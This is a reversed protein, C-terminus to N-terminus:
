KGRKKRAPTNLATGFESLAQGYATGLEDFAPGDADPTAPPFLTLRVQSYAGFRRTQEEGAFSRFRYLAKLYKGTFVDEQFFVDDVVLEAYCAPAAQILRGPTQRLTRSDLAEDHVIISYGPLGLLDALPAARMIEAQRAPSLPTPPLQRYGERGQVAGDVIGGHMWGYYTSRLDNAPWAHLQCQASEEPPAPPKAPVPAEQALVPSASALLIGFALPTLRHALTSFM